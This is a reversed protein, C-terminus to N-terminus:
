TNLNLLSQPSFFCNEQISAHFHTANVMTFAANTTQLPYNNKDDFPAQTCTGPLNSDKTAALTCAPVVVSHNCEIHNAHM